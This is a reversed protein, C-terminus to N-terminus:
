RLLMNAFREKQFCMKKNYINKIIPRGEDRDKM